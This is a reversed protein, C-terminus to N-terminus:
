EPTIFQIRPLPTYITYTRPLPTYITRPNIRIIDSHHESNLYFHLVKRHDYSLVTPIPQSSPKFVTRSFFFFFFSTM